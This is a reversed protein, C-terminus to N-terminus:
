SSPTHEGQPTPQPAPIPAQIPEPTPAQILGIALAEARNEPNKVFDVLRAPENHFRERLDSPLANFQEQADRIMNLASHFDTIESVDIPNFSPMEPVGSQLFRNVITNIDCEDKFHQQTMSEEGSSDLGTQHSVLDADYNYPTRLKM